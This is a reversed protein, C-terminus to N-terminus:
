RSRIVVISDRMRMSVSELDLELIRIGPISDGARVMMERGEYRLIGTVSEGRQVGGRYTLDPISWARSQTVQRIQRQISSNSGPPVPLSKVTAKGLFPDGYDLYLEEQWVPKSDLSSNQSIPMIAPTPEESPKFFRWVVLGWIILVIPLLIKPLLRNKM